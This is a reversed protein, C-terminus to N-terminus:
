ARGVLGLIAEAARGSAGPEGLKEIIARLEGQLAERAEASDLLRGVEAAIPEPRAEEQLFEQVVERGALINPMGLWKVKVLRRGIAFTLWAAKYLLVFPLGFYAAELTATGSAVMGATARQMLEHATMAGVECDAQPYDRAIEEMRRRMEVSSAAAEVRLEPRTRRLLAAAELM